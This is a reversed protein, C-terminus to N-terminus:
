DYGYSTLGHRLQVEALVTAQSEDFLHANAVTVIVFVSAGGRLNSIPIGPSNKIILM